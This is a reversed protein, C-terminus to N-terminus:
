NPPQHEPHIQHIGTSITLLIIVLSSDNVQKSGLTCQTKTFTNELTHSISQYDVPAVNVIQKAFQQLTVISNWRPM